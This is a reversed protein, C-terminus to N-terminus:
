FFLSAIIKPVIGLVGVIAVAAWAAGSSIKAVRQLGIAALIWGWIAFLDFASLVASLMPMTKPDLFAALSAKLLGGQATGLDITDPDKLFMVLINGVTFVITPPISSYVWVSVGQWFTGSGGMANGLLWYVLGGILFTVIMAVPVIAYTFVKAITGAQQEIIKAKQDPDLDATRTSHEIRAKVINTLGFKEVFLIQFASICLIMLLGGIIFRPKRRQDEFVSGPEIFVNGIMALESMQPEEVPKAAASPAVPEVNQENEDM